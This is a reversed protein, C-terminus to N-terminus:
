QAGGEKLHGESIFAQLESDSIVIKEIEDVKSFDLKKNAAKYANEAEESFGKGALALEDTSARVTSGTSSKLIKKATLSGTAIWGTKGSNLKVQTKKDGTTVITLVDGYAVNATKSAFFGTGSKVASKKVAVYVTQGKKFSTKAFASGCLFACLLLLVIKKM